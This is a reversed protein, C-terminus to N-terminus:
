RAHRAGRGAAPPAVLEAFLSLYASACAQTSFAAARSRLLDADIPADLALRMAEALAEPDGVPALRGFRGSELIESPGYPCDASVAQVGCALAEVLVNGFGEFRSALALAAARSILPLPNDVFGPMDVRDAVGLAAALSSLEGRLPGDGLIVLRLDRRAAVRAFARILTAHDKQAVMRGVAILVKSRGDFWPHVVPERARAAFREDVVGNYIVRAAGADLRCIDDLERAVGRSVAVIADAQRLFRRYLFPLAKFQLGPRM